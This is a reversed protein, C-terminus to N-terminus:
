IAERNKKRLQLRQLTHKWLAVLAPYVGQPMFVICVLFVMGLLVPRLRDAVRLWEPVMVFIAAGLVPGALTGRGGVIVMILMMFIFDMGLLQPSIYRIHHAYIAGAFGTLIASLTFAFVFNWLADIGISSALAPNERLAIIARGFRCQLLQRILYIALVLCALALFYYSFSSRLEISPLLPIAIVPIPIKTLGYSGGTLDYLHSSLLWLVLGFGFTVIAFAIGRTRSLSIYGIVFGIVGALAIAALWGLWVSVGLKLSLLTSTYAGVGFFAAHGLSIEGMYGVTINMGSALVAFICTMVLIHRLYEDTFIFPLIIAVALIVITALHKRLGL